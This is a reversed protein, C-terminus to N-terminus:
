AIRSNRVAPGSGDRVASEFAAFGAGITAGLLAGQRATKPVLSRGIVILLAAM